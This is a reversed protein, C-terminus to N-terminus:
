RQGPRDLKEIKANSPPKARAKAAAAEVDRLVRLVNRRALKRIDDDGWGRRLLEAVLDPYKSVDELGVVREGVPANYYDGGIGVHDVGVRQRVYDIHDAVEALTARPAPGSQAAYASRAAEAAKDAAAGKPAGARAAKVRAELGHQWRSVSPSVFSSVFTVMVVGGNQALRDLIADPVNRPHDVLARACSHSFFVPAASVDLADRMVDPSVHSLDVMMGLRNMERVVEKGFPSLGHHRPRDLAADAWDTTVNHTLTMYRAGLEYFMRLAGLSNEIVHGGEIGILSAIKGEKHAAEVAESGGAFAFADAHAAVLRRAVDIQELQKVAYPRGEDPEGPVYVSWFQAGVGGERLRPLDTDGNDRRQDIEYGEVDGPAAKDTRIVWPLDNHSDVLPAERLLRRAREALGEPPAPEASPPPAASAAASAPAVSAAPEGQAAGRKADHGGCALALLGGAALAYRARPLLFASSGTTAKVM